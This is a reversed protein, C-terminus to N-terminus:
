DKKNKIIEIFENWNWFKVRELNNVNDFWLKETYIWLLSSYTDNEIWDIKTLVWAKVNKDSKKNLLIDLIWLWFWHWSLIWSWNFWWLYLDWSKKEELYCTLILEWSFYFRYFEVENNWEIMKEFKDEIEKLFNLQNEEGYNEFYLKIFDKKILKKEEKSLSSLEQKDYTIWIQKLNEM